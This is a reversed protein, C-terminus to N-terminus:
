RNKKLSNEEKVEKEKNSSLIKEVKESLITFKQAFATLNKQLKSIEITFFLTLYLLFLIGLLFITDVTSRFRILKNIFIFFDRWISGIFLFLSIIVWIISFRDTLKKRRVTIFTLILLAFSALVGFIQPFYNKM